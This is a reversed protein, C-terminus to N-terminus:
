LRRRIRPYQQDHDFGSTRTDAWDLVLESRCRPCRTAASLILEACFPCPTRDEIDEVDGLAFLMVFGLLPSLVLSCLTWGLGSRGLRDAYWGAAIAFLLWAVVLLLEM